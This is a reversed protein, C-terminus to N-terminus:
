TCISPQNDYIQTKTVFRQGTGGGGLTVTGWQGKGSDFCMVVDPSADVLRGYGPGDSAVHDPGSFNPIAVVALGSGGQLAGSVYQGFGTFFGIAKIPSGHNVIKTLEMGWQYNNHQTLVPDVAQLGAEAFSIPVQGQEPSTKYQRGAVTYVNYGGNSSLPELIKGIFVCGGNANDGGNTGQSNSGSPDIAVPSGLTYNARCSFNGTSPFYGNGVDNIVASVNSNFQNLGQKFEAKSQKGSVFAAAIVFMFGSIALFLLTEVITYGRTDSAARM